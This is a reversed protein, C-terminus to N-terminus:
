NRLNDFNKYLRNQKHESKIVHTAVFTMINYAEWLSLKFDYDRGELKFTELFIEIAKPGTIPVMWGIFSELDIHEASLNLITNEMQKEAFVRNVFEGVNAVFKKM